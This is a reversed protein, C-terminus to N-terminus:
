VHLCECALMILTASAKGRPRCQSIPIRIRFIPIRFPFVSIIQIRFIPIRFHFAAVIQIRIQIRIKSTNYNSNLVNLFGLMRIPIVNSNKNKSHGHGPPSQLSCSEVFCLFCTMCPGSFSCTQPPNQLIIKIKLLYTLESSFIM